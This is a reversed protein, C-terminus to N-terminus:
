LCPGKVIRPEIERKGEDGDIMARIGADLKNKVSEDLYTENQASYDMIANILSVSIGLSDYYQIIEPDSAVTRVPSIGLGYLLSSFFDRNQIARNIM